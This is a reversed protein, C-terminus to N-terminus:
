KHPSFRNVLKGALLWIPLTLLIAIYGDIAYHWALHISGLVIIIAYITFIIGLSRNTRWGLIAFLFVISIHMSPMASIGKVYGVDYGQYSKWLIDQTKIAWVPRSQAAWHLYDMLPKFVDPGDVLRGYYCPGASSLLTAAITGILIWCMVFTLFFQMRLKPNSLSFAQWLLVGFMLFFWINYFFNLASTIVPRGFLPQLLQWPQCGGHIIFDWRAFTTDWCFPHIVPLIVKFSGFSSM